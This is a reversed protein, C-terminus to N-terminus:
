WLWCAMRSDKQQEDSLLSQRIPNYDPSTVYLATTFLPVKLEYTGDDETLVSYGDIGDAKVIAGSIAQRTAADVVRGRVTRTDYQKQKKVITRKRAPEDEDDADDQASACLPMALLALSLMVRFSRHSVVSLMDTLNRGYIKTIM